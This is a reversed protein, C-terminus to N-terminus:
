RSPNSRHHAPNQHTRHARDRENRDRQGLLQVLAPRDAEQPLRPGDNHAPEAWWNMSPRDIAQQTRARLNHVQALQTSAAALRDQTWRKASSILDQSVLSNSLGLRAGVREANQNWYRAPRATIVPAAATRALDPPLNSLREELLTDALAHPRTLAARLAAPGQLTFVDAPDLGPPFTVNGPDLDHPALMWYDREAAVQGSMNADNDTAVILWPDFPATTCTSDLSPGASLHERLAALQQAQEETLSTGLPAVGILKGPSALTVALADLPGEVLVPRAGAVYLDTSSVYLQSGKAFLANTPTNLYKPGKKDDDTLDTHRRGVFGLIVDAGGFRQTDYGAWGDRRHIIPLVLRDAFHDRLHGSSENRRAVGAALMEEDTAGLDHLHNILRDWGPPAFGPQFRDDDALDTGFRDTLHQAAWSGRLQQRYYALTLVNIQAIRTTSVPSNAFRAAHQMARDLQTDSTEFPGLADRGLKAMLLRHAVTDENDPEVAWNRPQHDNVQPGGRHTTNARSENFANGTPPTNECLSESTEGYPDGYGPDDPVPDMAVSLRWVLSQCPDDRPDARRASEGRFLEEIPWGRQLAREVVTVLTPWWPSHQLQHAPGLHILEPLRSTWPTSVQRDTDVQEAVAPSLHAHIRWWLAATAYDSPLPGAAAARHLLGAADLGSRAVGALREALVPAFSDHAGARSTAAIQDGWEEMAPTRDGALREKLQRQWGAPAKQLQSRGTPTRDSEPVLMAARWVAIDGIVDDAPRGGLMSAWTPTSGAVAARRVTDALDTVRAARQTLYPGWTDHNTLSAPVAPTWPLPGPDNGRLGTDDLRWDLVAATDGATDLERARAASQLAAIPDSGHASILVLHARLAPWADQEVIDPVVREADIGLAMVKDPGLQHEAAFYLADLYRQAAQGLLTTPESQHRLTTTASRPAEDRALIQELLETPTPPHTLEPRIMTHPDGNGTVQLYVHNAQKGRTLMTYLQQRSEDGGALGHATDVSVGQASHVTTAYGLEAHERVYDAPLTVLRGSRTHQVRLSGDDIALVTWRDGNKVWDTAATRLRRDNSRTIILEGISSLNGDALRLTPREEAGVGARDLRHARARANLEGALERTPALMISDLGNLRDILWANFVNQTMTALDGVHVRQQDLYFGLAEPHGERLSLSAAGEAPDVFRVLETLRCAGHIAQIDRLVGGAGIAALQQDDGILRVSGGRHLVFRVALDLTLTDAMGAEDIVVLTKPGIDTVSVRWPQLPAGEIVDDPGAPAYWTRARPDWRAGAARAAGQEAVPVDLWARADPDRETIEHILKALTDTRTNIQDHLVTAAAASPALGMVQGGGETWAASLARMATTKGSGAPAIALQLRAGSTAVERVLSAQGPNLVIGNASGSLLARDVTLDDVAAGDTRGAAAVLRQEAETVRTSTFLDAGAITYVSSGDRRRLLPPEVVDHEPRRLSVSLALAGAVLQEVLDAAHQPLAGMSRIQREAEARLHWVQWTARRSEMQTIVAQAMAGVDVRVNPSVTSPPPPGIATSLMSAIGADGGLVERAQQRWALRQEALGRPEHKGERTELTAQQALRLAEVPTPPRGHTGQFQTVLTSRREEISVRRASWCRNLASSVGVVERVPRKRHGASDREEFRLRLATHLHRELATNYTESAAVTAKFLVRGDIALWKGDTTRVKNAVAVHTHLDPDGARSDRHAFATAVLGQVDVQRVGNAGERSYLAHHEIFTLADNVAAQHAREIRAATGQDALAWLTSVSKVPSFTLDFGAVSQTKPRSGQAITTVLERADIADRGHEARFFARAVDTRVAAREEAPVPWDRPLGAQENLGALRAAVEVRYSSVDNVYAKYPTGLRTVARYDRDTLDPGHLNERRAHALPHHGSGFLAQMQDATVADGPSVGDIDALGSGVWVGPVEGKETYYSALATHGKETADLAAVQRTLYDYGSGATLKHISM